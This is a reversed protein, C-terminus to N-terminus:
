SGPDCIIPLLPLRRPGPVLSYSHYVSRGPDVHRIENRRAGFLFASRGPRRLRWYQFGFRYVPFRDPGRGDGSRDSLYLFVRDRRHCRDRACLKWRIERRSFRSHHLRRVTAPLPRPVRGASPLRGDLGNCLRSGCVRSRFPCGGNLHVVSGVDLGLRHGYRQIRGPRRSRGRLISRSELDAHHDWDCYLHGSVFGHLDLRDM